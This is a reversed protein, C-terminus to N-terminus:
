KGPHEVSIAVAETYRAHVIMDIELNDMDVEDPNVRVVSLHGTPERLTVINNERDIAAIVASVDVVEVVIGGPMDGEKARVAAHGIVVGPKENPDGLFLAVSEVYTATMTDGVRIQDFNRAAHGVELSTVSGDERKLLLTRDVRDIGVVEAQLVVVEGTVIGQAVATAPAIFILFGLLRGLVGLRFLSRM